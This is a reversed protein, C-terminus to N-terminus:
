GRAAELIQSRRRAGSSIHVPIGKESLLVVGKHYESCFNGQEGSWQPSAESWCNYLECIPLFGAEMLTIYGQKRAKELGRFDNIGEAVSIQTVNPTIEEVLIEKTGKLIQDGSEDEEFHQVSKTRRSLTSFPDDGSAKCVELWNPKGEHEACRPEIVKVTRIDRNETATNEPTWGYRKKISALASKKVDGDKRKAPAKRTAPKTETENAHDEFAEMSDKM